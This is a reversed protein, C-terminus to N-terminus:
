KNIIELVAQLHVAITQADSESLTTLNAHVIQQILGDLSVATHSCHNKLASSELDSANSHHETHELALHEAYQAALIQNRSLYQRTIHANSGQITPPFELLSQRLMSPNMRVPTGLIAITAKETSRVVLEWADRETLPKGLAEPVRNSGLKTFIFSNKTKIRPRWEDIWTTLDEKLIKPLQIKVPIGSYGTKHQTMTVIAWSGDSERLLDHAPELRCLTQLRIPCFLLISTIIYRQWSRLLEIESREKGASDIETCNQRLYASIKQRLEDTLECADEALRAREGKKTELESSYQRRLISIYNRLQAIAPVDQSATTVDSYQWSAILLVSQAINLAWGHSNGRQELGWTIFDSLLGQDTLHELEIDKLDTAQVNTLWGLFSLIHKKYTRYTKQRVPKEHRQPIEASTWFKELQDLQEKLFAPLEDESASYFSTKLRQKGKRTKEADESVEPVEPDGLARTQVPKGKKTPPGTKKSEM